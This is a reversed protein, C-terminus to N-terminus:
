QKSNCARSMYINIKTLFIQNRVQFDPSEPILAGERFWQVNTPKTKGSITTKFQAPSGEDVIIDKMQSLTPLIEQQEPAQVRLTASTAIKGLSNALECKYVGEDEPFAETIRLTFYEGDRSMQFFKSPKIINPGKFWQASPNPKGIARCKFIISSGESITQDKLPEILTPTKETGPVTQQPKKQQGKSSVVNCEGECRAEGSNNVAVCEYTGSDEAFAEIILLTYTGDEEVIKYKINPVIKQGNKLWYVDLPKTGNIKADFRALQGENVTTDQITTLFNPPTATGKGQRKREEVVLNASCKATGGRNEAIVSFMASDELFVQRIILVSKTGFTHIQFVPSNQIPFNERYWQVKPIPEGDYEVEFRAQENEFARCPQIKKTFFPSTSPQVAGEIVREQTKGKHEMETTETATIKRTIELDGVTEKQTQKQRNVHVERGHVSSESPEIPKQTSVKRVTTTSQDVNEDTKERHICYFSINWIM